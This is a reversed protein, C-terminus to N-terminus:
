AHNGNSKEWNLRLELKTGCDHCRSELVYKFKKHERELVSNIKRMIEGVMEDNDASELKNYTIGSFTLTIQEHKEKPHNKLFDMRSIKELVAGHEKAIERLRHRARKDWRKGFPRHFEREKIKMCFNFFKRIKGPEHKGLSNANHNTTLAHGNGM